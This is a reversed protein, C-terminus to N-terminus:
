FLLVVVQATSGSATTFSGFKGNFLEILKATPDTIIGTLFSRNLLDSKKCTHQFLHVGLGEKSAAVYDCLSCALSGLASPTSIHQNTLDTQYEDNSIPSVGGASSDISSISSRRKVLLPIVTNSTTKRKQSASSCTNAKQISATPIFTLPTSLSSNSNHNTTSLLTLNGNSYEKLFEEINDDLFPEHGEIQLHEQLAPYQRSEFSCNSCKFLLHRFHSKKHSRLM